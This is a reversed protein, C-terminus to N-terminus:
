GVAPVPRGSRNREAARRDAEASWRYYNLRGIKVTPQYFHAWRPKAISDDYYHTAGTTNDPGTEDYVERAIRSCTEWIPRQEFSLPELLKRRNPDRHRFCSFAAPKLIVGRWGVGFHPGLRVRNRVVNAVGLKAADSEGRAEGFICMALLVDEDQAHLARHPDPLKM